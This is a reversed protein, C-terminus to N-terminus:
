ISMGPMSLLTRALAEETRQKPHPLLVTDPILPQRKEVFAAFDCTIQRAEDLTMDDSV